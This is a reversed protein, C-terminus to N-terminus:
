VTSAAGTGDHRGTFGVWAAAQGHMARSAAGDPLLLTGGTFSRPGCWALGGAGPDAGDAGALPLDAGSINTLVSEWALVWVDDAAVSVRLTRRERVLEPGADLGTRSRGHWVLEHGFAVHDTRERIETFHQHDMSGREAAPGPGGWLDHQGVRPVAFSLGRHWPADHPRALSVVEGSLARVPHLYPRPAQGAPDDPLHIYTFLERGDYAVRVVLAVDLTLRPM